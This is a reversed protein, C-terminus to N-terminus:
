GSPPETAKKETGWKKSVVLGGFVVACVIGIGGWFIMNKHARSRDREAQRIGAPLNLRCIQTLRM